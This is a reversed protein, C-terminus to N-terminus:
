LLVSRAEQQFFYRRIAPFPRIMSCFIVCDHALDAHGYIGCQIGEVRPRQHIFVLLLVDKFADTPEFTVITIGYKALCM